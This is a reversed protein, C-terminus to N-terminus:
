RRRNRGPIGPCCARRLPRVATRNCAPGCSRNRSRTTRPRAAFNACREDRLRHSRGPGQRNHRVLSASPGSPGAQWVTLQGACAAGASRRTVHLGAPKSDVACCWAPLSERGGLMLFQRLPGPTEGATKDLARDGIEVRRGPGAPDRRSILQATSPVRAPSHCRLRRRGPLSLHRGNRHRLRRQPSQCHPRSRTSCVSRWLLTSRSTLASGFM